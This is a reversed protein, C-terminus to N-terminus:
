WNSGVNIIIALIVFCMVKWQKRWVKAMSSRSVPASMYVM